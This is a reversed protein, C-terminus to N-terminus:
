QKTYGETLKIKWIPAKVIGDLGKGLSLESVDRSEIVQLKDAVIIHTHEPNLYTKTKIIGCVLYTNKSAGEIERVFIQGVKM